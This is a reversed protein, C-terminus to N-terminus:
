LPVAWSLGLAVWWPNDGGSLDTSGSVDLQLAPTALFLVGGGVSQDWRGTAPAFRAASDVFVGLREDTGPVTLQLVAALPLNVDRAVTFAALYEVGVNVGLQLGAPLEWDALLDLRPYVETV